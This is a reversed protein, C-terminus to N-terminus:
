APITPRFGLKIVNIPGLITRCGRLEGEGFPKKDDLPEVDDQWELCSHMLVPLGGERATRVFTSAVRFIVLVEKVVGSSRSHGEKALKTRGEFQDIRRV